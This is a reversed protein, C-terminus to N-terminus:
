ISWGVPTDDRGDWKDLQWGAGFAPGEAGQTRLNEIFLQFQALFFQALTGYNVTLQANAATENKATGRSLCAYGAAGRVLQTQHSTSPSTVAESDLNQITHPLTYWLRLEDDTQPQAGLLTTLFLVPLGDDWWLRLGKVRNPPWQESGTSDYPWWVSSVGLLDTLSSLAIERGAGPLTLVTERQLPSAATYDELAHRLAETVITTTFLTGDDALLAQVRTILQALTSM